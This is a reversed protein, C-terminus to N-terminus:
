ASGTSTGVVIQPELTMQMKGIDLNGKNKLLKILIEVALEGLHDRLDDMYTLSPSILYPWDFNGLSVLSVQEPIAVHHEKCYHMVGVAITASGAIIATPRQGAPLTLLQKAIKYGYDSTFDGYHCSLCGLPLEHDYLYDVIGLFRDHNSAIKKDGTILAYSRHGLSYLHETLLYFGRRKDSSVAPITNHTSRRDLMLIPIGSKWTKQVLKENQNTPALVIADVQMELMTELCQKEIKPDDHHAAVLMIYGQNRLGHEIHQLAAAFFPVKLDVVIVGVTHTRKSKLSRAFSNPTFGVEAIVQQVKERLEDSVQDPTNMVRSVTSISVGAKDAIEKITQKGM